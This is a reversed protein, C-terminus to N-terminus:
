CLYIAGSRTCGAAAVVLDPHCAANRQATGQAHAAAVSGHRAIAKHQNVVIASGIGNRAREGAQGLARRNSDVTHVHHDAIYTPIAIIHCQGYWRRWRYELACGGVRTAGFNNQGVILRQARCCSGRASKDDCSAAVGVGDRTHDDIAARNFQGQGRCHGVPLRDSHGVVIWGNAVVGVGNM